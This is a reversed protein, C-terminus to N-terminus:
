YLENNIIFKSWEFDIPEDINVVERTIVYAQTNASFISKKGMLCQRTVAYCVGNRVYLEDLQQRATIDEGNKIYHELKNSTIKLAKLPHYKSNLKSVCVSSDANNLILCKLTEEIDASRRFPSTPEIILIIDFKDSFYKESEILAHTITDIATSTDHALKKPRIFPADLNYKRAEKAYGISDTTIVKADLWSLEGLCLGAWGILSVGDLNKINKDVVGKSGSRAPVIAIIKKNLYM